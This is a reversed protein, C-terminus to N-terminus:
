DFLWTSLYREGTDPLLVAINKGSFDPRKAIELAAYLAAGGSIGILMGEKSAAARATKGANEADVTIVEDIVATDLVEPIFGAGIGQLLHAGAPKGSLVASTDPEVAFIKIDPNKEKLYRGVGTLTGGTGVGAVFADIKGDTDDWLEVATTEYHIQSNAPNTFQQPIMSNPIQAHLEEAKAIAGAMGANGDTLVIEAGYAAALKRREVSMTEPMTLILRFGKVAAAIALGIGTNGSTPEIIVGGPALVGAKVAADIMAAGVRDKASGGPNFFEMKALIVANSDNLKNIKVLPTGGITGLINEKIDM